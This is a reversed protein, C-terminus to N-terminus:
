MFTRMATSIPARTAVAEIATPAVAAGLSGNLVEGSRVSRREGVASIREIQAPTLRPFMQDRRGLYPDAMIHGATGPEGAAAEETVICGLHALGIANPGPSRCLRAPDYGLRVPACLVAPDRARDADPARSM